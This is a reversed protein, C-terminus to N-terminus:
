GLNHCLGRSRVMVDIFLFGFFEQQCAAEVAWSLGGDLSRALLFEEPKEKNIHHYPGRDKSLSARSRVM